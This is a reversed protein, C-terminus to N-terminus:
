SVKKAKARKKPKDEVAKVKEDRPASDSEASHSMLEEITTTKVKVEKAKEVTPKAVAPVVAVPMVAPAVAPAVTKAVFKNDQKFMRLCKTCLRVRKSIGDITIKSKHLNVRFLRHTRQKSHSVLNGRMSRKHCNECMYSM